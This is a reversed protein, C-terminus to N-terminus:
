WNLECNFVPLRLGYYLENLRSKVPGETPVVNISLEVSVPVLADSLIVLLILGATLSNASLLKLLSSLPLYGKIKMSSLLPSPVAVKSILGKSVFKNVTESSFNDCNVMVKLLLGEEISVDLKITEPILWDPDAVIIEPDLTVPSAEEPKVM